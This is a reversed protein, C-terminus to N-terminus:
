FNHLPWNIALPLELWPLPALTLPWPWDGLLLDFSEPKVAIQAPSTEDNIAGPRQLFLARIDALGLKQWAPLQRGVATLWEDIQRCLPESLPAIESLPEGLPIGCLLHNVKLREAAPTEAAWALWDLSVAALRRAEDSIFRGERCFELLSFLQPLLPWLLVLGANSVPQQSETGSLRRQQGSESDSHSRQQQPEADSHSRQQRPEADSLKRPQGSESDSLRRQQRPEGDSLKRQQRPESDSHSRQQGPETDSHGRPWQQHGADLHEWLQRDPQPLLRDLYASIEEVNGKGVQRAIVNRVPKRQWLPLLWRRAIAALQTPPAPRDPGSLLRVAQMTPIEGQTIADCWENLQSHAPHNAQLWRLGRSDNLLYSLAAVALRSATVRRYYAAPLADRGQAAEQLLRKLLQQLRGPQPHHLLEQLNAPQLCCLALPYLSVTDRGFGSLLATPSALAPLSPADLRQRGNKEVYPKLYDKLAQALRPNFQADLLERQIAGLNIVVKALSIETESDLATVIDLLVNKLNDGTFFDSQLLLRGASPNDAQIQYQVKNIM